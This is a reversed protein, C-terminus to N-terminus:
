KGFGGSRSRFGSMKSRRVRKKVRQSFSQKRLREKAMRREFFSRHTKKTTEGFTGYQRNKGFWPQGQRYTRRYDDYDNRYIPRGFMNFMSSLFMWKGYFEWFSNGQSDTRWHGYRPNGVYQYGPPYPTDTIKGEPTKAAIVMGLYNFYKQFEKKSVKQWDLIESTFVLSDPNEPLAEAYVIKYKHYYDKFFTGEEKMDELIISFQPFQALEKKLKEVPSSASCSFLLLSILIMGFVSIVKRM